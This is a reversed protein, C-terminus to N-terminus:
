KGVMHVLDRENECMWEILDTDPMLNKTVTVTWPRTYAEPDDITMEIELHGVDLRRFRETLRMGDSHPHGGDDLWTVSSLGNTEVGDADLNRLWKADTTMWIGSLDPTGDPTRPTPATLDPAGDATRPLGPTPFDFWQASAPPSWALLLLASGVVWRM